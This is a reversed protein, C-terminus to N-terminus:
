DVPVQGGEPGTYLLVLISALGLGHEKQVYRVRNHLETLKGRVLDRSGALSKAPNPSLRARALVTMVGSLDEAVASLERLLRECLEEAIPSPDPGANENTM